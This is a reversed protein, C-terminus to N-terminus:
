GPTTASRTFIWNNTNALTQVAERLVPPETFAAGYKEELSAAIYLFFVVLAEWWKQIRWITSRNCQIFLAKGIIMNEINETCHRKYPVVLGVPLVRHTRKCKECLLRQIILIQKSGDAM